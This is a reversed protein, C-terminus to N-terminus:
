EKPMRYKLAANKSPSPWEKWLWGQSHAAARSILDRWKGPDEGTGYASSDTMYANAPMKKVFTHKETTPVPPALPLMRGLLLSVKEESKRGV